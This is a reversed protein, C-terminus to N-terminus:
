CQIQIWQVRWDSEIISDIKHSPCSFL